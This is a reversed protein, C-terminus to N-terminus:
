VESLRELVCLLFDFNNKASTISMKENVTHIDHIDPGMSVIDLNPIQEALIGCELGAHIGEVRPDRKFVKKFEDVMIDRLKSDKKYEWAPYIGSVSFATKADSGAVCSSLERLQTLMYDRYSAKQSRVSFGFKVTNEGTTAVGMNLSSEVMGKVDNSMAQVGSITLSLFRLISQTFNESFCHESAAKPSSVKVNAHPEGSRIEDLIMDAHTTLSKCINKVDTKCMIRARASRTIVNDKDGGEFSIIQFPNESWTMFLLRGLLVAANLPHKAIETGSHGGVLEDFCIEIVNGDESATEGEFQIQATAGGACSVLLVGEEENDINILRKAKLDSVDLASAGIMGVEEDTTFVVELPPHTITDSDLIALCYALAIGDDGGLTTGDCDLFDGQIRLPLPDHHFDHSGDECVCVMDMHGQMMVPEEVTCGKSAPKKIIVNCSDDKRYSLGHSKAFAVLFDSIKDNYYSGRPINSIQEFYTFIKKYDIDELM